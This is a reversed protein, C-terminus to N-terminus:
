HVRNCPMANVHTHTNYFPTFHLRGMCKDGKSEEQEEPTSSTEAKSSLQGKLLHVRNGTLALPVTEARYM